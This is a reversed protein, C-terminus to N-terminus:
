QHLRGVTFLAGTVNPAAYHAATATVGTMFAELERLTWHYELPDVAVTYIRAKRPTEEATITAINLLRCAHMFSRASTVRDTRSPKRM